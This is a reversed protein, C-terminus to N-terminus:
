APPLAPVPLVLALVAFALFVGVAQSLFLLGIQLPALTVIFRGINIFSAIAFVLLVLLIVLGLAGLLTSAMLLLTSVLAVWNTAVLYPIFGDQRNMQKLAVYATLAQAAYILGSAIISQTAGGSPMPAGLLRPWFGALAVALIVAILSGILGRQSFDFHSPADRKGTLLALCGRAAATLENTFTQPSQAM